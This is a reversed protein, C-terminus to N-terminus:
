IEKEWATAFKRYGRRHCYSEMKDDVAFALVRSAGRQKLEEILANEMRALLTAGRHAEDIWACEIHPLAIAVLRGVVRGGDEAVAVLSTDPDLSVSQDAPVGINLRNYEDPRLFRVTLM